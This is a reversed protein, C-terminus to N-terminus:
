LSGYDLRLQAKDIKGTAALPMRAVEIVRDPLWWDPVSGRLTALLVDPDFAQGPALEIVLVAREGWKPDPRAIVAAQVVSAGHGVIAEMETPNIWEGGSKILDKSRGAITLYGEDDILALDGTDFFGQEDLALAEVGFYGNSVSPGKM